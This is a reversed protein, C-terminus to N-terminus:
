AAARRVSKPPPATVYSDRWGPTSKKVAWKEMPFTGAKWADYRAPGLIAKQDGADLNDFYTKSDPLLSPPEKIDFGLDAWSKTTPVRACRCNQHGNPGAESLPHRTGNKAFCAPCTRTSLYAVWTWDTLVDDHEAQGLAAAARHADISETRAITLARQLGGNFGGEARSVMRRATERPNAGAVVGRILERRVASYAEGSLPKTLSTIQETSRKVIATVAREDVRSWSDLDVLQHAGPPLQSDIISAQAGGAADVLGQLDDVIRIGADKTLTDLNNAILALAKRLQTSRLLQARTVKDGAVLMEQLLSTLEPAVEDWATAWAKVLDRVQEDTIKRLDARLERELRLTKATIAM